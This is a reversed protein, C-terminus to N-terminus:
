LRGLADKAAVAVGEDEDRAANELASRVDIATSGSNGLAIAANERVVPEEDDLAVILEPQLEAAITGLRTIIASIAERVEAQPHVILQRLRPVLRQPELDTREALVSAVVGLMLPQTEEDHIFALLVDRPAAIEPNILSLSRAAEFRVDPDEDSLKRELANGIDAWCSNEPAKSVLRRQEGLQKAGLARVGSDTDDLAMLNSRLAEEVTGIRQIALLATYRTEPNAHQLDQIWDCLPRNSFPSVSFNRSM